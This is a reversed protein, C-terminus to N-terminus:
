GSRRQDGDRDHAADGALSAQVVVKVNQLPAVVSGPPVNRTVVVGPELRCDDGIRWPGLVAARAGFIVDNGVVPLGPGAGIDKNSVGGGIGNHGWLTCNDGIRGFVSVGVPHLIVLGGGIDSIVSVDAGTLVPGLESIEAPTEKIVGPESAPQALPCEFAGAPAAHRLFAGAFLAAVAARAIIRNTM